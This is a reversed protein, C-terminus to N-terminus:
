AIKGPMETTASLAWLTPAIIHLMHLRPEHIFADTGIDRRNAPVHLRTARDTGECDGLGGRRTLCPESYVTEDVSVDNEGSSFRRENSGERNSHLEEEVSGKKEGLETHEDHAFTDGSSRMARM